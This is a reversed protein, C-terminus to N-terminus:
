GAYVEAYLAAYQAAVREAGYLRSNALGRVVLEDRYSADSLVREIGARIAAPDFPDVLCAAGGSVDAMPALQSTVVPRGIAQAEIIPLGFGEYTSVFVVLDAERYASLVQADTLGVRESHAIGNQALAEKQSPRLQGIISLQCPLGRLAAALREINKHPATGLHLISPVAGLARRPEPTMHCPLCDPVVRIKGACGPMRQVLEARSAKSVTTVIRARAAPLRYWLLDIVLRRAGRLRNLAVCDHLTLITRRRRLAAAVYYTDGTVHNVDAQARRASLCNRALAVPNLGSCPAEWVSARVGAPLAARVAAFLREISHGRGPARQFHCVHLSM